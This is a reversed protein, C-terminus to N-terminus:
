SVPKIFFDAMLQKSRKWDGKAPILVQLPSVKERGCFVAIYYLGTVGYGVTSAIAAGLMGKAPILLWDLAVIIVLCISSAMLNVRLQNIGAFYSAFITAGGFLLVGPLLVRFLHASAEFEEGFFVPVIWPILVFLVISAVTNILFMTRSAYMIKSVTPKERAAAVIPLIIGALVLPVVWLFQVLKVALSYWGLEKDDRFYDLFWYDIRYALFQISNTVLTILSYGFFLRLQTRTISTTKGSPRFQRVAIFLAITQLFSLAVYVTIYDDLEYAPLIFYCATFVLLSFVNAFLVIRSCLTFRRLGNLLATYKENLSISVIFLGGLVWQTIDGPKILWGKGTLSFSICEVIVLIVLQWLLIYYIITNIKRVPIDGSAAHYLVGADAGFSSFLNFLAANVIVLSLVGYGEVGTLRSLILLTLFVVAVNIIRYVANLLLM